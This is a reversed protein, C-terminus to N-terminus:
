FNKISKKLNDDKIGFVSSLLPSFDRFILPFCNYEESIKKHHFYHGTEIFSSHSIASQFYVFVMVILSMLPNVCYSCIFAPLHFQIGFELLHDIPHLFIVSFVSANRFCHHLKHYKSWCGHLLHRHVFSFTLDALFLVFIMKIISILDMQDISIKSADVM